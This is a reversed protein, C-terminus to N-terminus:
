AGIVKSLMLGVVLGVLFLAAGVAWAPVGSGAGRRRGKVKGIAVFHREATETLRARIKPAEASLLPKWPHNEKDAALALRISADVAQSIKQLVQHEWRENPLMPRNIADDYSALAQKVAPELEAEIAETLLFAVRRMDQAQLNESKAREVSLRSSLRREMRAFIESIKTEFAGDSM